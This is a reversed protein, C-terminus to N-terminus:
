SIISNKEVSIESGEVLFVSKPESTNLFAFEKGYVKEFDVEISFDNVTYHEWKPHTVEYEVTQTDNKKAYGWYHQAIFEAESGAELEKPKLDVIIQIKQWEKQATWEYTVKLDKSFDWSHKMKQKEYNEKYLTNAVLSIALKPVIEKIFVVGRKWQEGQKRKVYFRLNVEEFNVHFPVKVGLVRTNLFMFGVLSLYCEGSWLDLETGHPVYKKLIEPSVCYNIMVLKRWDAKLFSM